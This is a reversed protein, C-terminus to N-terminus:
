VLEKVLIGVANRALRGSWKGFRDGQIHMGDKLVDRCFREDIPALICSIYVGGHESNNSDEM